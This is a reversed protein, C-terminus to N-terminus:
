KRERVTKVNIVNWSSIDVNFLKAGKFMSQLNIVNSMDWSSIDANFAAAAYFV